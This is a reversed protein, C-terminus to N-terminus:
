HDEPERVATPDGPGPKVNVVKSQRAIVRNGKRLTVQVKYNGWEPFRHEKEWRRVVESVGPQYPECDGEEVSKTGTTGGHRADDGWEWEVTPCYYDESDDGGKLEATFTMDAPSQPFLPRQRLELSPKKGSPEKPKDKATEGGHGAVALLIFLAVTTM